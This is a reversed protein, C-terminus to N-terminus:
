TFTNQMGPRSSFHRQKILKVTWLLTFQFQHSCFLLPMDASKRSLFFIPLSLAQCLHERLDSQEPSCSASLWGTHIERYFQLSHHASLSLHFVLSDMFSNILLLSSCGTLHTHCLYSGHLAHRNVNPTSSSSAMGKYAGAYWNSTIGAHTHEHLWKLLHLSYSYSHKSPVTAWTYVCVPLKTSFLFIVWNRNFEIMEKVRM